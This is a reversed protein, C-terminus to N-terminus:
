VKKVLVYLYMYLLPMWLLQFIFFGAARNVLSQLSFHLVFQKQRYVSCLNGSHKLDLLMLLFILILLGWHLPFFVVPLESSM